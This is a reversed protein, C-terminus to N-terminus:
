YQVSRGLEFCSKTSISTTLCLANTILSKKSYPLGCATGPKGHGFYAEDIVINSSIIVWTLRIVYTRLCTPIRTSSLLRLLEALIQELLQSREHTELGDVQKKIDM